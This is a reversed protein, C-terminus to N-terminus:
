LKFVLLKQCNQSGLAYNKIEAMALWKGLKLHFGFSIHSTPQICSIGASVSEYISVIVM